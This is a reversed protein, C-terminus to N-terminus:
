PHAPAAVFKGGGGSGDEGVLQAGHTVLEEFGYAMFSPSSSPVCSTATAASLVHRDYRAGRGCPNPSETVPPGLNVLSFGRTFSAEVFLRRGRALILCAAGAFPVPAPPNFHLPAGSAFPAFPGVGGPVDCFPAPASFESSFRIRCPLVGGPTQAYMQLPSDQWRGLQEYEWEEAVGGPGAAAAAAGTGDVGGSEGWVCACAIVM